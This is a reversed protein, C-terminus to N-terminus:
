FIFDNASLQDLDTDVLILRDGADDKIVLNGKREVVHDSILDTFSDIGRAGSLDVDDKRGFGKLRDKGESFVFTDGGRGGRLIDNGSGGDLTDKGGDGVLTDSGSGGTLEDDGRRGKLFDNGSGGLLEDNMGSGIYVQDVDSGANVQGNEALTGALLMYESDLAGSNVADVPMILVDASGSAFREIGEDFDFVPLPEFDIDASDFYSALAREMAGGVSTFGSITVIVAGDLDDFSDVGLSRSVVAVYPGTDWVTNSVEQIGSINIRSM